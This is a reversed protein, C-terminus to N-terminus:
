EDLDGGYQDNEEKQISANIYRQNTNIWRIYRKTYKKELKILEIFLQWILIEFGIYAIVGFIVVLKVEPMVSMLSVAFPAGVAALVVSSVLGLAFSATGLFISIVIPILIITILVQLLRTKKRSKAHDKDNLNIKFKNSYRKLKGKVEILIGEAKSKIKSTNKSNSESLLENAIEKPSGLGSIIEMDSKGEIAGDIFYEEYDRLIDMVEDESFGKKLYDKLIELFDEKKM